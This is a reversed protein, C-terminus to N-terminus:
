ASEHLHEVLWELGWCHHEFLLHFFVNWIFSDCHCGLWIEQVLHTLRQMLVSIELLPLDLATFLLDFSILSQELLLPGLDFLQFASRRLVRSHDTLRLTLAHDLDVANLLELILIHAFLLFVVDEGVQQLAHNVGFLM